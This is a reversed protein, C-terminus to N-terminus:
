RVVYEMPRILSNIMEIEDDTCGYRKFLEDDIWKHSYDLFPVFRFNNKSINM